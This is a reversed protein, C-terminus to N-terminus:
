FIEIQCIELNCGYSLNEKSLWNNKLKIIYRVNINKNIYNYIERNNVFIKNKIKLKTETTFSPRLIIYKKLSYIKNYNYYFKSNILKKFSNHKIFKDITNYFVLHEKNISIKINNNNIFLVNNLKSTQFYLPQIYNQINNFKIIPNIKIIKDLISYKKTLSYSILNTEQDYVTHNNYKIYDQKIDAICNISLLTFNFYYYNDKFHIQDLHVKLLKKKSENILDLNDIYLNTSLHNNLIIACNNYSINLIKNDLNTKKNNFKFNTKKNIDNKINNITNLLDKEYDLEIIFNNDNDNDYKFNTISFILDQNNSKVEWYLKDTIFYTIDM